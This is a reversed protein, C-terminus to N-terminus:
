TCCNGLATCTLVQFVLLLVCFRYISLRFGSPGDLLLLSFLIADVGGGGLMAALANASEVSVFGRQVPNGLVSICCIYIDIRFQYVFLFLTYYM